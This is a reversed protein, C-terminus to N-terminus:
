KKTVAIARRQHRNLKERKSIFELDHETYRPPHHIRINSSSKPGAPNQQNLNKSTIQPDTLKSV